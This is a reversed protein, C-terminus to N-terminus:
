DGCGSDPEVRVSVEAADRDNAIALVRACAESLVRGGAVAARWGAGYASPPLVITTPLEGPAASGDPRTTTWAYDLVRTAPDYAFSSPTGNTASAYPRALAAVATSVRRVSPARRIQRAIM